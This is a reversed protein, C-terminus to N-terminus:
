WSALADEFKDKLATDPRGCQENFADNLKQKFANREEESHRWNSASLVDQLMIWEDADIQLIM